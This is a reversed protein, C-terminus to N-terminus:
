RMPPIRLHEPPMELWPEGTGGINIETDNALSYIAIQNYTIALRIAESKDETVICIDLYTADTETGYWTGLIVNHHLFMDKNSQYFTTIHESRAERGTISASREPFLSVAFLDQGRLNGFHPHVSAGGYRSHDSVVIEAIQEATLRLPLSTNPHLVYESLSGAVKAPEEEL